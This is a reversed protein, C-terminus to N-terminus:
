RYKRTKIYNVVIVAFGGVILINSIIIAIVSASSLTDDVQVVENLDYDSNNLLDNENQIDSSNILEIYYPNAYSGNGESIITNYKLYVVPYIYKENIENSLIKNNSTYYAINNDSKKIMTWSESKALKYMWTKKYNVNNEYVNDAGLSFTYLYDSPYILGITGVWNENAKNENSYYKDWNYDDDINFSNIIYKTNGILKKASDSLSNFYTENLYNKIVSNNWNSGDSWNNKDIPENRMIKVRYKSIGNGNDVKFVGIIRWLECTSIDKKNLCNFYIYNNAMRGIYRYAYEGESIQYTYMSHKDGNNYDDIKVSNSKNILESSARYINKGNYNVRKQYFTKNNNISSITITFIIILFTVIYLKKM